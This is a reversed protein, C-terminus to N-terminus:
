PREFEVCARRWARLWKGDNAPEEMLIRDDISRWLNEAEKLMAPVLSSDASVRREADAFWWLYERWSKALWPQGPASEMISLIESAFPNRASAPSILAGARVRVLDTERLFAVLSEEFWYPLQGGGGTPEEFRSRTFRRLNFFKGTACNEAGAYKWLLMDASTFGVTIRMGTQRLMAILRMAGKLEEADSLERRPEVTSIFVLYLEESSAQSIISAIAMGRNPIALDNLAIVATQVPRVGTGRLASTLRRGAFVLRAFYDDSYARPLVAPSCIASPQLLECCSVLSEVLREWWEDSGLDATDVDTPFYNWARLKGRDSTPVYLQPDFWAEFGAMGAMAQIQAAVRSQVYNVPSLIAGRYANLAPDRILNESDHGMQHFVSM